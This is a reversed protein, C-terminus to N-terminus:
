PPDGGFVNDGFLIQNNKTPTSAPDAAKNDSFSQEFEKLFTQFGSDTLEVSIVRELPSAIQLLNKSGGDTTYFRGFRKVSWSM